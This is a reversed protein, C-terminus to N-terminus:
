GYAVADQRKQAHRLDDYHRNPIRDKGGTYFKLHVYKTFAPCIEGSKTCRALFQCPGLDPHTCPPPPQLALAEWLPRGLTEGTGRAAETARRTKLYTRRKPRPVCVKVATGNIENSLNM